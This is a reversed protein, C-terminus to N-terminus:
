ASFPSLEDQGATGAIMKRMMSPAGRLALTQNSNKYRCTPIIKVNCCHFGDNSVNDLIAAWHTAGVYSPENGGADLLGGLAKYDKENFADNAVM